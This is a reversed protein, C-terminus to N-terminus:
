CEQESVPLFLNIAAMAVIKEPLHSKQYPSAWRINNNM